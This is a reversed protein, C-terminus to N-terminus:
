RIEMKEDGKASIDVTVSPPRPETSAKLGLAAGGAGMIAALGGGWALPDIVQGKWVAYATMLTYAIVSEAWLVRGMDYTKGDVGTFIDRFFKRM